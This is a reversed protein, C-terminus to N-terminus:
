MCALREKIQQVLKGLDLPRFLVREFGRGELTEAAIFGHGAMVWIPVLKSWQSLQSIDDTPNESQSLDAILLGPMAKSAQLRPAAAQVSEHAEADV